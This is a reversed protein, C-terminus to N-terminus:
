SKVRTTLLARIEPWDSPRWLRYDVGAAALRAAWIDQMDSTTGKQSKLEAVIFQHGRVLALDPWGVHGQTPTVQAGPRVRASPTHGVLWGNDVACAIVVKQFVAETCSRDAVEALYRRFQATLQGGVKTRHAAKV